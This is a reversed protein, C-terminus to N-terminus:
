QAGKFKITFNGNLRSLSKDNITQYGVGTTARYSLGIAVQLFGTINLLVNLAPEVVFFPNGMQNHDFFNNSSVLNNNHSSAVGLGILTYVSYNIINQPNFVYEIELGGYMFHLKDKKAVLPDGEVIDILVKSALGYVGLGLLFSNNFIWGGRGGIVLAGYDNLSTYKTVVGGFGKVSSIESNFLTNEQATTTGSLLITLIIITLKIKM